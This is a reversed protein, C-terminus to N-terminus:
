ASGSRIIGFLELAGVITAVLLMIWAVLQLIYTGWIMIGAITFETWVAFEFTGALFLVIATLVLLRWSKVMVQSLKVYELFVVALLIAVIYIVDVM